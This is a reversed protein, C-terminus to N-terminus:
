LWMFCISWHPLSLFPLLTFSQKPVVWKMMEGLFAAPPFPLTTGERHPERKCHRILLYWVVQCNHQVDGTPAHSMKNCLSLWNCAGVEVWLHSGVGPQTFSSALAKGWSRVGRLHMEAWLIENDFFYSCGTPQTWCSDRSKIICLAIAETSKSELGIKSM